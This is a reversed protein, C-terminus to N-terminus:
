ESAEAEAQDAPFLPDPKLNVSRFVRDLDDGLEIDLNAHRAKQEKTRKNPPIRNLQLFESLKKALAIRTM